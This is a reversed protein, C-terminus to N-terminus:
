NREWAEARRHHSRVGAQRLLKRRMVEAAGLAVEERDSSGRSGRGSLSDESSHGDSQEKGNPSRKRRGRGGFLSSLFTSRGNLPVANPAYALPASKDERKVKRYNGRGGIGGHFYPTKNYQGQSSSHSDACGRTSVVTSTPSLIPPKTLSISSTTSPTPVQARLSLSPGGVYMGQATSPRPPSDTSTARPQAPPPHDKLSSTRSLSQAQQSDLPASGDLPPDRPLDQPPQFQRNLSQRRERREAAGRRSSPRAPQPNHLSHIPKLVPSDPRATELAPPQHPPEEIPPLPDLSTRTKRDQSHRRSHQAHTPTTPSLPQPFLSYIPKGEMIFL